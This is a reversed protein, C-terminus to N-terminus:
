ASVRVTDLNAERRQTLKHEAVSWDASNDSHYCASVLLQTLVDRQANSLGVCRWADPILGLPHVDKARGKGEQNRDQLTSREVDLSRLLQAAASFDGQAYSYIARCITISTQHAQLFRATVTDPDYDGMIAVQKELATYRGASALVMAIHIDTSASMTPKGLMSCISSRAYAAVFMGCTDTAAMRPGSQCRDSEPTHVCGEIADAMTQWHEAIDAADTRPDDDLKLRYLLSAIDQLGMALSSGHFELIPGEFLEIAEQREGADVLMLAWHWMNHGALGGSRWSDFTQKM